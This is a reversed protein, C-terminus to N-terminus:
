NDNTATAGGHGGAAGGRQTDKELMSVNNNSDYPTPIYCEAVIM